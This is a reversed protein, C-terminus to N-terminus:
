TRGGSPGSAAPIPLRPRPLFWFLPVSAAKLVFFPVLAWLYSQTTDYVWGAYVPALFPGIVTVSGMIGRITAFSRRGFFEGSLAPMLPTVAEGVGYLLVFLYLLWVDNGFSLLIMAIASVLTAWAIIRQKSFRDGLVGYVLTMPIGILPILSFLYAASQEGQGKWVLIPIMHVTIAGFSVMRCFQAIAFLWFTPTKLAQKITFDATEPQSRPVVEGTSLTAGDASDGDPRLGISEPSRHFLLSLPVTIVLIAIGAVVAGTRWGENVVLYALLPTWIFGGVRNSSSILSIAKARHRVFWLNMAALLATYFGTQFGLSAVFVWVLFLMWYSHVVTGLLIFGIGALINGVLLMIRPGFKDTLWGAIPAEVGGELRAASFVFSTQARSLGLEKTIPLFFVSFGYNNLAGAFGIVVSAAALWWGYYVRKTKQVLLRFPFPDTPQVPQENPV